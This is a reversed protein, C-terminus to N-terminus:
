LENANKFMLVGFFIIIIGIVDWLRAWDSAITMTLCIAGVGVMFLSGLVYKPDRKRGNRRFSM